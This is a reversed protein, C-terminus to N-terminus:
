TAAMYAHLTEMLISEVSPFSDIEECDDDLLRLRGERRRATEREGKEKNVRKRKSRSTEKLVRNIEDKVGQNNRVAELRSAVAAKKEFQSIRSRVEFSHGIQHQQETADELREGNGLHDLLHDELIHLKLTSPLGVLRWLRCFLPVYQSCANRDAQSVEREGKRAISFIADGYQLLRTFAATAQLVDEDSVDSSREEQPVAILLDRISGLIAEAYKMILRCTTGIFDGGHYSPRRISWALYVEEEIRLIIPRTLRGFSKSLKNDIAKARNLARGAEALAREWEKEEAKLDGLEEEEAENLVEGLDEQRSLLSYLHCDTYFADLDDKALQKNRLADVTALRAAELDVSPAPDFLVHIWGEVLKMVNNIMGIEMHLVPPVLNDIPIHSILPARVIGMVDQPTPIRPAQEGQLYLLHQHMSQLTWPDARPHSPTSRSTKNIRCYPCWNGAMNTKGLADNVWALDGALYVRIPIGQNFYENEARVLTLASNPQVSVRSIGLNELSVNIAPLIIDLVEATDKKCRMTAIEVPVRVPKTDTNSQWLLILVIMRYFGKGYDGSVVVDITKTDALIGLRCSLEHLVVERVGKITYRVRRKEVVASLCSPALGQSGTIARMSATSAFLAFGYHLRTFRRVMALANDGLAAM